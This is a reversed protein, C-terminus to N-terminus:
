ARTLVSVLRPDTGPGYRSLRLELPFSKEMLLQYVECKCVGSSTEVLGLACCWYISAVSLDPLHCKPSREAPFRRM